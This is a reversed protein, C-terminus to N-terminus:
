SGRLLVLLRKMLELLQLMLQYVLTQNNLPVNVGLPRRSFGGGSGGRNGGTSPQDPSSPPTDPVPTVFNVQSVTGWIVENPMPQNNRSRIRFKYDKASDLGTIDVQHDQTLTRDVLQSNAPWVDTVTYAVESTSLENTTWSVVVSTPDRQFIKINEPSRFWSKQADLPWGTNPRFTGNRIGSLYEAKKKDYAVKFHSLWINDLNREAGYLNEGLVRRGEDYGASTAGDSRLKHAGFAQSLGYGSSFFRFYPNTPADVKAIEGTEGALTYNVYADVFVARLGSLAPSLTWPGWVDVSDHNYIIGGDGIDTRVQRIFNYDEKIGGADSNDFYWGDLKLESQFGKMWNLTTTIAQHEGARPSGTPYNWKATVPSYLYSIVKFGNRHAVAIFKDILPRNAYQYSMIDGHLGPYGTTNDYLDGGFLVFVGFNNNIYSRMPACPDTTNCGAILNGVDNKDYLFQVFPRASQGYLAEFNFPKPPFVMHAMVAGTSLSLSSRDSDTTVSVGGSVFAHLSGGQGDTWMRDRAVGKNWPAVAILNTQTYTFPLKATVFFLSDSMFEFTALPSQIVAKSATFSETRFPGLDSNFTLTAVLRPNVTNTNPDIRRWLEMGTRGLVYKAGTTIVTIAEGTQMVSEVKMGFNSFPTLAPVVPTVEIPVVEISEGRILTVETPNIEVLPIPQLQSRWLVMTQDVTASMGPAFTLRYQFTSGSLCAGSRLDGQPVVVGSTMPCWTKGTDSSIEVRITSTEEGMLSILLESVPGTYFRRSEMKGVVGARSGTFILSSRKDWIVGALSKEDVFDLTDYDDFFSTATLSVPAALQAFSNTLFNPLVAGGTALVVVSMTLAVFAILLPLTQKSM